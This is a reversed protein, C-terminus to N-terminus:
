GAEKTTPLLVCGDEHGCEGCSGCEDCVLWESKNGCSWDHKGCHICGEYGDVCWWGLDRLRCEDEEHVYKGNAWQDARPERRAKIEIYEVDSDYMAIARAANRTPAYVLCSYEAWDSSLVYAKRDGEMM